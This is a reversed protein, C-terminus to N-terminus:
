AYRQSPKHHSRFQTNWQFPCMTLLFRISLFISRSISFQSMQIDIPITTAMMDLNDIRVRKSGLDMIPIPRKRNGRKLGIQDVQELGILSTIINMGIMPARHIEFIGEM